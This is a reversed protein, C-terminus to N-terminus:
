CRSCCSSTNGHIVDHLCRVPTRLRYESPEIVSGRMISNSEIAPCHSSSVLSPREVSSGGLCSSSGTGMDQQPCTRNSVMTLQCLRESEELDM